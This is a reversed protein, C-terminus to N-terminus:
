RDDSTKYDNLSESDELEDEVRQKFFEKLVSPTAPKTLKRLWKKRLIIYHTAGEDDEDQIMTYGNEYLNECITSILSQSLKLRGSLNRLDIHKLTYPRKIHRYIEIINSAILDPALRQNEILSLLPAIKDSKARGTSYWRQISGPAVDCIDAMQTFSLDHEARAKEIIQRAKTNVNQTSM